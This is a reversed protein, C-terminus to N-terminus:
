RAEGREKNISKNRQPQNPLLHDVPKFGISDVYFAHKESGKTIVLIDSTSVSRMRRGFPRSDRNHEVFIDELDVKDPAMGAYARCYDTLRIKGKAAQYSSFCYDVDIDDRIQYIEYISYQESGNPREPQYLTGKKHMQEAFECMHVVNNGIACHYDDIYTCTYSRRTGDINTLVVKGGDPVTFLLNYDPDIFRCDRKGEENPYAIVGMIDVPEKM